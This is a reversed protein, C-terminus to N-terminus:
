LSIFCTGLVYSILWIIKDKMKAETESRIAILIESLFKKFHNYLNEDKEKMWLFLESSTLSIDPNLRIASRRDCVLQIDTSFLVEIIQKMNKIRDVSRETYMTNTVSGIKEKFTRGQVAENCRAVSKDGTYEKWYKQVKKYNQENLHTAALDHTGRTAM